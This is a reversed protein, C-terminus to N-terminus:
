CLIENKKATRWKRMYECRHERIRENYEEKHNKRYKRKKEANCKRCINYKNNLGSPSFENEECIHHGYKCEILKNNSM